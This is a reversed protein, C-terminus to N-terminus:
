HALKIPSQPDFIFKTSNLVSRGIIVQFLANTPRNITAIGDIGLWYVDSSVFNIGTEYYYNKLRAVSVQQNVFGDELTIGDVLPYQVDNATIKFAKGVSNIRFATLKSMPEALVIKEDSGIVPPLPNPVPHDIINVALTPDYLFKHDEIKSGLQIFWIDGAALSPVINTLKGNQSLYLKDNYTGPLLADTDYISGPTNAFIGPNGRASDKLLIGQIVPIELNSINHNYKSNLKIANQGVFVVCSGAEYEDFCIAEVVRTYYSPDGKEKTLNFTGTNADYSVLTM